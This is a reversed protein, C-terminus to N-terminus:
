ILPRPWGTVWCEAMKQTIEFVPSLGLLSPESISVSINGLNEDHDQEEKMFDGAFLTEIIDRPKNIVILSWHMDQNIPM